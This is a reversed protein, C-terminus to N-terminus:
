ILTNIDDILQNIHQYRKELDEITCKRCIASLEHNYCNPNATKVYNIIKGMSYIDTQMNANNLNRYAKPDTYEEVGVHPEISICSHSTDISSVGFDIVFWCGSKYMFNGPHLDRHIINADHLFKVKNLMDLIQLNTITFKLDKAQYLSYDAKEMKIEFGNANEIDKNLLMKQKVSNELRKLKSIVRKEREFTELAFPTKNDLLKIVITENEENVIFVECFSGSKSVKKKMNYFIRYKCGSYSLINNIKEYAVDREYNYLSQVLSEFFDDYEWEQLENDFFGDWDLKQELSKQSLLKNNEYKQYLNRQEDTKLEERILGILLNKTEKTLNFM